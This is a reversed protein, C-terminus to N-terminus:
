GAPARRKRRRSELVDILQEARMPKAWVVDFGAEKAQREVHPFVKGSLCVCLCDHARLRQKIAQVVQFGDVSPMDLDLIAIHPRQRAVLEIAAAGNPATFASCGLLELLEALMQAADENDDAVVM